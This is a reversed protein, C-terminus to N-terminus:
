RKTTAAVDIMLKSPDYIEPIAGQEFLFAEFRAIRSVDLTAPRLAFRHWSEEWIEQSLATVLSDDRASFIKWATEPNSRIDQVARETAALFQAIQATPPDDRRAVYVLEDYEPVGEDEPLFCRGQQGAAAVQLLDATRSSTLVADVSGSTLAKWAPGEIEVLEVADARVQHASLMPGLLVQAGGNDPIGIRKKELKGIEQVPGEAKTLLCTQPGAILTGVQVLSLGDHIALHVDYAHMIALEVKGAALASGAADSTEPQLLDITISADHFYGLTQAVIIPGHDHSVATNLIVRLRSEAALPSALVLLGLNLLVPALPVACKMQHREDHQM